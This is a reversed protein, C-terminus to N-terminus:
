TCSLGLHVRAACGAANFSMKSTCVQQVFSGPLHGSLLLVPPTVAEPCAHSPHVHSWFFLQDWKGWEVARSASM